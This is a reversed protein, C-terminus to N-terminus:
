RSARNWAAQDHSVPPSILLLLAHKFLLGWQGAIQTKRHQHPVRHVCTENQLLPEALQKVFKEAMAKAKEFFAGCTEMAALVVSLDVDVSSASGGV